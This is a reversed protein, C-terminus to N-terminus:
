PHIVTINGRKEISSNDPLKLKLYYIYTGTPAKTSGSESGDWGKQYDKTSYVVYGWRNYIKLEYSNPVFSFIPKFIDNKGDNNPTFAEPIYIPPELFVCVTNSLSYDQSASNADKAQIYYCFQGGIEELTLDDELTFYNSLSRLLFTGQLDTTKYIDYDSSITNSENFKNWSLTIVNYNNELNLVINNLITDSVTTAQNCNNIAVLKYYSVKNDPDSDNDIIEIERNTSNLTNITDFIGSLSNSKLLKFTSIESNPAIEFKLRTNNDEVIASVPKIYDPSQFIDSNVIIYNSISQKTPYHDPTSAIYYEYTAGDEINSDIFTKVSNDLTGSIKIFSGGDKKRYVEYQLAVDGEGYLNALTAENSWELNVTNACTDFTHQLYTSPFKASNGSTQIGIKSWVKYVRATKDANAGIHIFENSGDTITGIELWSAVSPSPDNPDDVFVIVDSPATLDWSLRVNGTGQIVSVEKLIPPDPQAYAIQGFIFLTFVFFIKLFSINMIYKM